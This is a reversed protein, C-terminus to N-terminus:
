IRSLLSNVTTKLDNIREKFEYKMEQYKNEKEKFINEFGDLKSKLFFIENEKNKIEHEMEKIKEKLKEQEKTPHLDILKDMVMKMREYSHTENVTFIEKINKGNIQLSRDLDKIKCENGFKTEVMQNNDTIRIYLVNYQQFTKRHEQYERRYYDNSIGYKFLQEGNHIGIYAIYCVNSKDFDVLDNNNYFCGSTKEISYFGFKNISPLVEKCVWSQFVRAEPKGSQMALFFMGSLNLFIHGKQLNYKKSITGDNIATSLDGFTIKDEPLIKEYRREIHDMNYDLLRVLDNGKFWANNSNDVVVLVEKGKYKFYNNRIDLFSSCESKFEENVKKEEDKIASTSNNLDDMEKLLTKAKAKISKSLINNQVYELDKYHLKEKKIKNKHKAIYAKPDKSQIIQDVLDELCLCITESEVIFRINYKHLLSEM